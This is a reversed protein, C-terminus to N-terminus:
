MVVRTCKFENKPCQLVQLLQRSHETYDHTLLNLPIINECKILLYFM